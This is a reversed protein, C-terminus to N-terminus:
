DGLSGKRSVGKAEKMVAEVDSQTPTQAVSCAPTMLALSALALPLRSLRTLNSAPSALM